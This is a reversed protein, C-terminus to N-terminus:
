SAEPAHPGPLSGASASGVYAVMRNALAAVLRAQDSTEPPTGDLHADVSAGIEPASRSALGLAIRVAERVLAPEITWLAEFTRDLDDVQEQGPREWGALCASYGPAECVLSWERALPDSRDLPLETPGQPPDRREPFDAFVVAVAATRSLERWRSEADRYFRERQFSAFVLPREALALCEDEIAHSLGIMTRKPLLYPSLEPRRRRLGAFISAEPQEAAQLVRAIAAALSTGAERERAV